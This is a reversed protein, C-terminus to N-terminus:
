LLHGMRLHSSCLHLPFLGFVRALHFHVLHFCLLLVFLVRPLSLLLVLFLFRLNLCVCPQVQITKFVQALTAHSTPRHQSQSISDCQYPPPPSRPPPLHQPESLHLQTQLNSGLPLVHLSTSDVQQHHVPQLTTLHWQSTNQISAQSSCSIAAAPKVSHSYGNIHTPQNHPELPALNSNLLHQVPVQESVQIQRAVAKNLMSARSSISASQTINPPQPCHCHHSPPDTDKVELWDCQCKKTHVNNPPLLSSTFPHLTSQSGINWSPNNLPPQYPVTELACSTNGQLPIPVSDKFDDVEDVEYIAPEAPSTLTRPLSSARANTTGAWSTSTLTSTDPQSKAALQRWYKSNHLTWLCHVEHSQWWVPPTVGICVGVSGLTSLGSVPLCILIPQSAFTDTRGCVHAVWLMRMGTPSSTYLWFISFIPM